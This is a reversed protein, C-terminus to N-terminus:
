SVQNEESKTEVPCKPKWSLKTVDPTKLTVSSTLTDCLLYLKARIQDLNAKLKHKGEQANVSESFGKNTKEKSSSDWQTQKFPLIKLSPIILYKLTLCNHHPGISWYQIDGMPRPVYHPSSKLLDQIKGRIELSNQM